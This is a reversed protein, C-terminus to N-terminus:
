RQIVSYWAEDNYWATDRKM